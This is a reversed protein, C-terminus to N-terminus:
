PPKSFDLYTAAPTDPFRVIQFTITVAQGAEDRGLFRLTEGPGCCSAAIDIGTKLEGVNIWKGGILITPPGGCNGPLADLKPSQEDSGITDAPPPAKDLRLADKVPPGSGDSVSTARGGCACALACFLALYRM